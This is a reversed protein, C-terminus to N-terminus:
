QQVIGLAGEAESMIPTPLEEIGAVQGLFNCARLREAVKPIFDERRDEAQVYLVDLATRLTSEANAFAIPLYQELPVDHTPEHTVAM